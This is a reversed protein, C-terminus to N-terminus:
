TGHRHLAEEWGYRLEGMVKVADAIPPSSKRLNAEVLRSYVYDYMSALKRALEGGADLDLSGRLENIIDQAKLLCASTGSLDKREILTAADRMNKISENYLMLVLEGPSATEVSMHRYTSLARERGAVLGFAPAAVMM